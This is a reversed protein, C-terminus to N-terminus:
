SVVFDRQLALIRRKVSQAGRASGGVIDRRLSLPLRRESQSAVTRVSIANLYVFRAWKCPFGDEDVIWLMYHGPPAVGGWPPATCVLRNSATVRFACGVYRQDFNFAHTMSGNRILAVREISRAQNPGTTVGFSQGYTLNETCDVIEPRHIRRLYAPRYVEIRKERGEDGGGGNSGATWVAGNPMLLATAHYHRPVAAREVTTWKEKHYATYKGKSWDIGPRYLEADRVAGSQGEADGGDGATGGNVFVDGTPLITACLHSRRPPFGRWQRRPTATWVLPPIATIPSRRHSIEIRYAQQGGAVLMTAIYDNEPLLPLLVSTPSSGVQYIPEPPTAVDRYVFRGRMPDYIGNRSTGFNSTSFFVFGNPLVHIRPYSDTVRADMATKDTRLLTWRNTAPDYREPTNNNHRPLSARPYEETLFPHGGCVFVEGSPLTAASPYWRGGSQESGDPALSMRAREIWRRGFPDFIWCGRAGGWGMGGHEAHYGYQNLAETYADLAEQYAADSPFQDRNPRRLREPAGIALGNPDFLAVQGGMVLLRGDSLFSHGSCFLNTMEVEVTDPYTDLDPDFRGVPQWGERDPDHPEVTIESTSVDFFHSEEVRYGGFYLIEGRPKTPLLAAHVAMKGSDRVIVEWPTCEAQMALLKDKLSSTTEDGRRLLDRLVSRPDAIGCAATIRRLSLQSM